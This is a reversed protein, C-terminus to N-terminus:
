IQALYTAIANASREVIGKTTKTFGFREIKEGVAKLFRARENNFALKRAAEKKDNEIM